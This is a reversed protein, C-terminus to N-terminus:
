DSRSSRKELEIRNYLRRGLPTITLVDQSGVQQELLGWLLLKQVAKRLIFEREETETPELGSTKRSLFMFLSVKGSADSREILDCFFDLGSDNDIKDALLTMMGSIEDKNLASTMEDLKQRLRANEETLNSLVQAVDAAGVEPARIWGRRPNITITTGLSIAFQAQLESKDRWQRVIKQKVKSKFHQLAQVSRSDKDILDNPWSAKEDIIFGLVPVKQAVAYDYEKETYSIGEEAISGYRHAIIVVYYDCQDITRQIVAWQQEDAANFMEMGVPIHNMNLCAKIIEDREDKLDEYTSSVFIQYKVNM